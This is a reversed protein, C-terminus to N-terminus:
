TSSPKSSCPRVASRLRAQRRQDELREVRLQHTQYLAVIVAALTGISGTWDAVDGFQPYFVAHRLGPGCAIWLALAATLAILGIKLAASNWVRRLIAAPRGTGGSLRSPTPVEAM